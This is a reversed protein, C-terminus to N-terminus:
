QMSNRSPVLSVNRCRISSLEFASPACELAGLSLRLASVHGRVRPEPRIVASASSQWINALNLEPLESKRSAAALRHIWCWGKRAGRNLQVPHRSLLSHNVMCTAAYRPECHPCEITVLVWRGFRGTLAGSDAGAALDMAQRMQAAQGTAPFKGAEGWLRVPLARRERAPFPGQLFFLSFSCWLLHM